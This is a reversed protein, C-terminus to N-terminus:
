EFQAGVADDAAKVGRVIKVIEDGHRGVHPEFELEVDLSPRLEERPELQGRIEIVAFSFLSQSLFTKILGSSFCSKFRLKLSLVHGIILQFAHLHLNISKQGM